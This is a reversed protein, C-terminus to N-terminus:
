CIYKEICHEDVLMIDGKSILDIEEPLECGAERVVSLFYETTYISINMIRAKPKDRLIRVEHKVSGKGVVITDQDDYIVSVNHVEMAGNDLRQCKTKPNKDTGPHGCSALSAILIATCIVMIIPAYPIPFKNMLTFNKLTSDSRGACTKRM